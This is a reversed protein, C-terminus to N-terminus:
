ASARLHNSLELWIEEPVSDRNEFSIERLVSEPNARLQEILPDEMRKHVVVISPKNSLVISEEVSHRFEPSYLEMPGVEDCVVIDSKAKARRLARVALTELTKLNVRYKGIKPGSRLDDSALIESEETACDVLRFGTREGHSRVERTLVGGVTYGQTKAKLIIKSLATTKGSAPDGTLLWIRV